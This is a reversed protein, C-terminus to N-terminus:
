GAGVMQHPDSLLSPDDHARSVPIHFTCNKCFEPTGFREWDWLEVARPSNYMDALSARMINGLRLEPTDNFNDCPCFSVNGDSYVICAFIPILCQKRHEHRQVPFWRADAPLPTNVEDYIGWNAYDTIASNIRVLKRWDGGQFVEVELWDLLQDRTRKNLLRFELQIEHQSSEVIRRIGEKMRVFTSRGTMKQYEDNDIGYISISIKGFRSVIYRLEDNDFRHAMAANTTVGLEKIEPVGELFKLRAILHRDLFADGVLPTFSLFGGGLAVYDDVAKKFVDMAMITKPREQDRYACIVCLNNCTNVTEIRLYLPRSRGRNMLHVQYALPAIEPLLAWHDVIAAATSDQYSNM